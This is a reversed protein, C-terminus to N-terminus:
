VREVLNANMDNTSGIATCRARASDPEVNTGYVYAVM